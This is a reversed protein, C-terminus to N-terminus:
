IGNDGCLGVHGYIVRFGLSNYLQLGVYGEIYIYICIDTYLQKFIPAELKGEGGRDYPHGCCPSRLHAEAHWTM